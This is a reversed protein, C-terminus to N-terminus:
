CKVRPRGCRISPEKVAVLFDKITERSRDAPFSLAQRWDAASYITQFGLLIATSSPIVLRMTEEYALAGFGEAGWTRPAWRWRRVSSGAELTAVSM